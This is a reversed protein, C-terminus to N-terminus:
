WPLLTRDPLSYTGIGCAGRVPTGREIEHIPRGTGPVHDHRGGARLGGALHRHTDTPEAIAHKTSSRSPPQAQRGLVTIQGCFGSADASRSMPPCAGPRRHCCSPSCPIQSRAPPRGAAQPSARWCPQRLPAASEAGASSSPTWLAPGTAICAFGCGHHGHRSRGAARHPTHHGAM